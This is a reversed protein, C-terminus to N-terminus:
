KIVVKKGNSIYLGKTPKVVRVGQVSYFESPIANMQSGVTTVGTTEGELVFGNAM